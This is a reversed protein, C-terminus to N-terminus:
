DDFLQTISGNLILVGMENQKVLKLAGNEKSKNQLQRIRV